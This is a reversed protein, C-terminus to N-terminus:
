ATTRVRLVARRRRVYPLSVLAGIIPHCIVVAPAAKQDPLNITAIAIAIGPHRTGTVLALVTRDEPAPGGPWHGVFLGLMTFAALALVLGSGVLPWITPWAVALAPLCAILLLLTAVCSLPRAIRTAINPILRHVVIGAALPALITTFVILTVKTVPLAAVIDFVWGALSVAIPGFVIAFVSAVVLLGVAYGAIGGARKQKDPLLPPIPSIALALLAVKIAEPLPFTADIVAAIVVMIVNMAILSRVLLGPRHLLHVIDDAESQLGLVFVLLITSLKLILPVLEALTM